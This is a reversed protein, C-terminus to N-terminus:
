DRPINRTQKVISALFRASGIDMLVAVGGAGVARERAVIGVNRKSFKSSGLVNGDTSSKTLVKTYTLGV